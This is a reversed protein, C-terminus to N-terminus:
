EVGDRKVEQWIRWTMALLVGVGAILVGWILGTEWRSQQGVVSTARLRAEGGLIVDQRIEARPLSGVGRQILSAPILMDLGTDARQAAGNGWALMFPGGGQRNFVLQYSDREGSLAPLKKPLHADITTLKVGEVQQGSLPIDESQKGEVRYLVTKTLPQWPEKEGSRWALAVPLVGEDDLAVRLTNLPQPPDWHWMAIDGSVKSVRPEILIREPGPKISKVTAKIGSLERDRGQSDFIVLLYRDGAKSLTLSTNISDIKLRDNNSILDMLPVSEEVSQWERLDHSAYVSVRGQWSEAPTGWNLHLRSLRLPEPSNEPLTVLYSKGGMRIERSKIHVEVGTKSRLTLADVGRQEEKQLPLPSMDLPFFPLTITEPTERQADQALLAFPVREGQANFIRVDRLDSWATGQYVRQPLSVRYWQSTGPTDLVVGTAYDQPGDQVGKGGFAAGAVSLLVGFFLRKFGKM